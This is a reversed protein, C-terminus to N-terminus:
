VSVNETNNLLLEAAKRDLTEPHLWAPEGGVWNVVNLPPPPQLMLMFESSQGFAAVLDSKPQGVASTGNLELIRMGPAISPSAAAAASGSAVKTIINYKGQSQISLGLKSGPIKSIHTQFAGVPLQSPGSIPELTDYEGNATTSSVKSVAWGDADVCMPLGDSPSRVIRRGALEVRTRHGRFGAQIKAAAQEETFGYVTGDVPDQGSAAKDQQNENKQAKRVKFGRFGAQIKTAAQQEAFGYVTGDVPDASKAKKNAKRIRFGRFGAQIKTAAQEEAFGYVAGDVPAPAPAPKKVKSTKNAKRVKFGRFGAQIKTAAQQEAFGYETGDQDSVPTPALVVPWLQKSITGSQLAEVVDVM